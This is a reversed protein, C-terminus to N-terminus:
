CIKLSDQISLVCIKTEKQLYKKIEETYDSDESVLNKSETKLCVAVFPWDSLDFKLEEFKVQHKRQLKGSFKQALKAVVIKFWKKLAVSGGKRDHQVNELCRQYEKEIHREHDFTVRHGERLVRNLFEVADYDVDAAMYLVYTDITWDRSM